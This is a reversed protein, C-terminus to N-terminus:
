LAVAAGFAALSRKADIGFLRSHLRRERAPDTKPVRRDNQLWGTYANEV